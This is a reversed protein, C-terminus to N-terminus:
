GRIVRIARSFRRIVHGTKDTFDTTKNQLMRWAHYVWWQSCGLALICWFFRLPPAQWPGYWWCIAGWVMGWAGLILMGARAPPCDRWYLGLALFAPALLPVFWRVSVCYGSYNNSNAAYVMTTAASWLLFCFLAPKERLPRLLLTPLAFLLTFLIPNHGLFGKQGFLLDVCYILFKTISPHQWHG